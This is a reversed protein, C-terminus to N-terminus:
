FISQVVPVPKDLKNNDKLSMWFPGIPKSIISKLSFAHLATISKQFTYTLFESTEPFKQLFFITSLNRWQILFFDASKRDSKQNELYDVKFLFRGVCWCVSVSSRVFSRVFSCVFLFCIYVYYEQIILESTNLINLFLM